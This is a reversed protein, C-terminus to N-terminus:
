NKIFYKDFLVIFIILVLIFLIINKFKGTHSNFKEKFLIFYYIINPLKVIPKEINFLQIWSRKIYYLTESDDTNNISNIFKLYYNQTNNLIDQKRIAFIGHSTIYKIKIDTNFYSEFWKGFPRIKAKPINKNIKFDYLIKKVNFLYQDAIFISDSNNSNILNLLKIAKLKKHSISLSGPLFITIDDLILYSSIIHYLFTHPERGVNKLNIIKIANTKEFDQDPGKNYIICKYSSFPKENLWELKENYRSIVLIEKM